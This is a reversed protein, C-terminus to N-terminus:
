NSKQPAPLQKFGQDAFHQYVTMGSPGIMYPLFVERHQVMGTEILALQALTWRLLQRWAVREAKERIKAADKWGSNSSRNWLIKFIPEVRVPMEFVFDSGGIQMVWRLGTVTGDKYDSAISKAGNQTLANMIELATKSPPVETTEMFLQKKTAM